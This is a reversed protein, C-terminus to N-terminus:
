HDQQEDDQRQEAEALRRLKNAHRAALGRRRAASLEERRERAAQVKIRAAAIRAQVQQEVHSTSPETM